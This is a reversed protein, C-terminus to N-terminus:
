SRDSGHRHGAPPAGAHRPRLRSRRQPNRPHDGGPTTVRGVVLGVVLLLVAGLVLAIRLRLSRSSQRAPPHDNGRDDPEGLENSGAGDTADGGDRVVVVDTADSEPGTMVLRLGAGDGGGTCAAGPEPANPSQWYTKLFDQLRADDPGTLQIQAGWASAVVPSPLGVYPSLIIYTDPLASRLKTLADGTVKSADYTVWVTGHELSHVANENPVAQDYIGCNLWM